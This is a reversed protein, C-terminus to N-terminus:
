FNTSGRVTIFVQVGPIRSLTDDVEIRSDEIHILSGFSRISM